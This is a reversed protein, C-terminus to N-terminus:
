MFISCYGSNKLKTSYYLDFDFLQLDYVIVALSKMILNIMLDFM